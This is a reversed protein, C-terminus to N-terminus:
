EVISIFCGIAPESQHTSYDGESVEKLVDELEHSTVVRRLRGVRYYSNDIRGHYIIDQKTENYVFVEPTIKAGLSKTKTQFYERKLPFPIRYKEKFKEIGEDSSYRNPFLGIFSINDSSYEENLRSLEAAYYHCIRCDEGMFIFVTITDSTSEGRASQLTLMFVFGFLLLVRFM